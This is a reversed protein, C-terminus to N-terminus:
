MEKYPNPGINEIVDAFKNMIDPIRDFEDISLTHIEVREPELVLQKLKEQVNEMRKNALESGRIFHCQYDDGYKCGILLVGDFGASLADAIWSTSVSGLCRVPIVRIHPTLQIRKKAVIDLSPYADNECMFALIRPTAEGDEEETPISISKIVASTIQVSYNAFSIIREPCAGMCIGCRRCRNPNPLPTGKADEDLTGFPCEETCRKCQTCRQLFFDPFTADGSRPHVAIGKRISELLQIAKLAAGRADNAAQVADMPSRTAGAAYIGTRRTEYPFCIYHSDPFGYKLTPLDTGQRYTLNLIQAGAEAAEAMKKGGETEGAAEADEEVLTSPVMGTALVVLDAELRIQKGVFTDDVDVALGGNLPEVLSIEGKSLFINDENQVRKYFIESRSPTRMDKYIVYINADPNKERVYMAQKLSATCCMASCYPLREPDRSGACQIFVVNKVPKGNSPKLIQPAKALEEMEVNTVVDPSAGYGLHGLKKADYPRWGSAQIIAGAMFNLEKGASTAKVNFQGPQGSIKDILCNKLVQIKPHNEVQAILAQADNSFMDPHPKNSKTIKYLKAFFGGLENEKETLIVPYGAQAVALAANLGTVGGGVVLTTDCIDLANAKPATSKDAKVIGMTTYDLALKETHLDHPKHTWAVLERLSVRECIVEEGFRFVDTMYRFSCAAVVVKDVAGSEIDAKIAACQKEDCLASGIRCVAPSHNEVVAKELAACDVAEGISCGSCIYVGIKSEAAM